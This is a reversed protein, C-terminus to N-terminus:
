AYCFLIYFIWGEGCTDFSSRVQPATYLCAVMITVHCALLIVSFLTRELLAHTPLWFLLSSLCVLMLSPIYTLIVYQCSLRALIFSFSLRESSGTAVITVTEIVNNVRVTWAMENNAKNGNHMPLFFDQFLHAFNSSIKNVYLLTVVTIWFYGKPM